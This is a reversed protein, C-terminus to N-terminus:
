KKRDDCYGAKGFKSANKASLSSRLQGVRAAVFGWAELRQALAESRM